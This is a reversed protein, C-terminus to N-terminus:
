GQNLNEFKKVIRQDGHKEAEMQDARVIGIRISRDAEPQLRYKIKFTIMVVTNDMETEAQEDSVWKM